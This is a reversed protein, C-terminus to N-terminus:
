DRQLRRARAGQGLRLTGMPLDAMFAERVDPPLRRDRREERLMAQFAGFALYQAPKVGHEKGADLVGPMDQYRGLGYFAVTKLAYARPNMPHDRLVRDCLALSGQPQDVLGKAAENLLDGVEQESLRPRAKAAPAVKPTEKVAPPAPAASKVPLSAEPAPPAPSPTPDPLSITRPAATGRMWSWVGM